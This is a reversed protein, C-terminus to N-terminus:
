SIAGPVGETLWRDLCATVGITAESKITQLLTNALQMDAPEKLLINVADQLTVRDGAPVGPVQVEDLETSPLCKMFLYAKNGLMSVMRTFANEIGDPYTVHLIPKTAFGPYKLLLQSFQEENAVKVRECPRGLLPVDVLRIERGTPTDAKVLMTAFKNESEDIAQMCTSGPSHVTIIGGPTPLQMTLRKHYDGTLLLKGPPVIDVISGGTRGIGQLEDWAQHMCIVDYESEHVEAVTAALKDAKQFSVGRIKVGQLDVCQNHLESARRALVTPWPPDSADHNGDIFFFEKFLRDIGRTFCDVSEADPRSKDFLDGLCIIPVRASNALEICHDFAKYTDGWMEPYRAWVKPQLHVDSIVLALPIEAVFDSVKQLGSPSSRSM